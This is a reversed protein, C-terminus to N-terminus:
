TINYHIPQAKMCGQIEYWINEDKKFFNIFLKNIKKDYNKKM